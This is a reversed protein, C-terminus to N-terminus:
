PGGMVLYAVDLQIAYSENNVLQLIMNGDVVSTTIAVNMQGMKNAVSEKILSNANKVTVELFKTKGQATNWMTIFYKAAKFSRLSLVPMNYTESIGITGSDNRWHKNKGSRSIIPGDSMNHGRM